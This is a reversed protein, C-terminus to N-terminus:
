FCLYCHKKFFPYKFRQCATSGWYINSQEKVENRYVRFHCTNELLMLIKSINKKKLLFSVLIKSFSVCPVYIKEHVQKLNCVLVLNVSFEINILIGLVFLEMITINLTLPRIMLIIASFCQCQRFGNEWLHFALIPKPVLRKKM